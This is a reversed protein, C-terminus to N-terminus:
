RKQRHEIDKIMDIRIQHRGGEFDTTLFADVIEKAKEIDIIRAGFSIINSDNHKRSLTASKSESCVACRIGNVKNAALSIGIGTGCILIGRDVENNIVANAVKEGFEPYNVSELTDCGYNIVEYGYKEEVYAKILNKYEVGAHDNGIGIRM